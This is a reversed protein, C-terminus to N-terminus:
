FIQKVAGFSTNGLAGLDLQTGGSAPTVGDVRGIMLATANVPDKGARASIEFTYTGPAAAAGSDTMGDWQFGHIGAEQAGLDVRHVVAGSASKVTLTLGDAHGDLQYGGQAVGGALQLTSGETMVQRGVLSAAQMNQSSTFGLSMAQLTANLKNIGEVTSIQAMQTTVQANDLPNLPDQNKLQAVLMTLFRDANAAGSDKPAVQGATANTANVISNVDM